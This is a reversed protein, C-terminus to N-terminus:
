MVSKRDRPHLEKNFLEQGREKLCHVPNWNILFFDTSEVAQMSSLRILLKLAKDM